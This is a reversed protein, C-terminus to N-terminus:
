IYVPKRRSAVRQCQGPRTLPIDLNPNAGTPAAPTQTAAKDTLVRRSALRCGEGRKLSDVTGCALEDGPSEGNEHFSYPSRDVPARAQFVRLSALVIQQGVSAVQTPSLRYLFANIGSQVPLIPATPLTSTSLAGM